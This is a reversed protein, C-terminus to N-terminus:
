GINRLLLLKSGGYFLWDIYDGGTDTQVIRAKVTNTYTNGTQYIITAIPVFEEEPMGTWFLNKIEVMAGARATNITTYYNEGQIAIIPHDKDNTAFLHSLVYDNNPVETQQWIGSIDQNYALRSVGFRKVPFNTAIDKRWNGSGDKYLVPIQAIPTLTQPSGNTIVFPLDEDLIKGDTLSLTAHSDLSGDGTSIINGIAFGWMYLTGHGEHHNIHSQWPMYQHREEGFYVRELNTGDWRVAACYVNSFLLTHNDVNVLEQFVDNSDIYIYHIGEVNSIQFTIPANKTILVGRNYYSFSGSVPSITLTRTADSFTMDSDIINPFGTPEGTIRAYSQPVTDGNVLSKAYQPHDYDYLGGLSGHDSGGGPSVVRIDRFDVYPDGADTSVIISKVTNTFTDSTQIIITGIAIFEVFPLGTLSGIEIEAAARADGRNNYENIGQIIMVPYRIDNTGFVHMLMYRGNTVDSQQWVGGVLNNFAARGSLGTKVPYATPNDIYWLNSSGTRYLIPANLIPNLDQVVGDVVIHEIDEDKFIGDGCSFQIHSDLTGNGDVVFNGLGFGSVYRAHDVYHMRNHTAWDMVHGHREEGLVVARQQVSNWYVNCTFAVGSLLYNVPPAEDDILVADSGVKEYYIFHLGDVNSIKINETTKKVYKVGKIYFHFDVGTPAISFIRTGENFSITNETTVSSDLEMPYGTPENDVQGLEGLSDSHALAM